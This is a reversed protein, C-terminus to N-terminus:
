AEFKEFAERSAHFQTWGAIQKQLICPANKMSHAFGSRASIAHSPTL